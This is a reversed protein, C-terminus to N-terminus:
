TSANSKINGPSPLPKAAVTGGDIMTPSDPGFSLHDVLTQSDSPDRGGLDVLTPSDSSNGITRIPIEILTPSDEPLISGSSSSDGKSTRVVAGGEGSDSPKGGPRGRSFEEVLSRPGHRPSRFSKLAVM